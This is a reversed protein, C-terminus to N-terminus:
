KSKSAIMPKLDNEAKQLDEIAKYDLGYLGPDSERRAIYDNGQKSLSVKEIRKGTNSTVDIEVTPTGFGSNVFKTAQLDRVKDLLSEASTPDLKKGDAGFWDNGGKTVVSVKSGDHIEIKDPDTYGFDFLKKNRFDDLRKDLGQGLDTPVKYVGAVLTSKAYYDDKNKRVQLEQTGTDTTLKATAVPKGAAFASAAKKQDDSGLDMKAETLKRVLDDVQFSDARLPKPKLIQWQDKNRGFEIEQQATLDLRSIKDADVALLRKDRLDNVGKDIGSKTYSAISFVRPDDALKAYAGNNTPTDDGILLKHEQNNKGTVDVELSPANLGFQSLNDAKEEVLRESGLSALTSVM